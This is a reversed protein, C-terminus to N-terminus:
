WNQLNIKFTASYSNWGYPYHALQSLTNRLLHDEAQLSYREEDSSGRYGIEFLLNSWISKVASTNLQVVSVDSMKRKLILLASKSGQELESLGFSYMKKSLCYVEKPIVDTAKYWEQIDEEVRLHLFFTNQYKKFEEEYNLKNSVLILQQITCIIAYKIALTVPKEINRITRSFDEVFDTIIESDYLGPLWFDLPAEQYSRLELSYSNVIHYFLNQLTTSSNLHKQEKIYQEFEIPPTYLLSTPAESKYPDLSFTSLNGFIWLLSANFNKFFKFLFERSTYGNLRIFNLEMTLLEATGIPKYIDFLSVSLNSNIKIMDDVRVIERNHCSTPELELGKFQFVAYGYGVEITQVFYSLYDNRILLCNNGETGTIKRLYNKNISKIFMKSFNSYMAADITIQDEEDPNWFFKSSRANDIWFFPLGFLPCYVADISACVIAVIVNWPFAMLSLFLAFKIDHFKTFSYSIYAISIKVMFQLNDICRKFAPYIFSCAFYLICKYTPFIYFQDIVIFVVTSHLLSIPRTWAQRYLKAGSVLVVLFDAISLYQTLELHWYFSIFISLVLSNFAYITNSVNSSMHKLKLNSIHHLILFTSPTLLLLDILILGIVVCKFGFIIPPIAVYSMLYTIPFISTLILHTLFLISPPKTWIKINKSDFYQSWDSALIPVTFSVLFIALSPMIFLGCVFAICLVLFSKIFEGQLRKKTRCTSGGFIHIHIREMFVLPIITIDSLLRFFYLFPLICLILLLTQQFESQVAYAVIYLSCAIGHYLNFSYKDIMLIEIIESGMTIGHGGFDTMKTLDIFFGLSIFAAYIWSVKLNIFVTTLVNVVMFLAGLLNSHKTELFINGDTSEQMAMFYRMLIINAALNAAMIMGIEYDKQLYDQLYCTLFTILSILFNGLELNMSHSTLLM